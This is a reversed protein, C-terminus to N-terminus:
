FLTNGYPLVSKLDLDVMPGNYTIEDFEKEQKAMLITCVYDGAVNINTHIMYLIRDISMILAIGKIPMIATSDM